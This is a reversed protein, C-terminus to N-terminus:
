GSRCRARRPGERRPELLHARRRAAPVPVPQHDGALPQDRRAPDAGARRRVRDGAPDGRLLRRRQLDARAARRRLDPRDRRRHQHHGGVHLRRSREAAEPAAVPRVARDGASSAWAAAAGARRRVRAHDHAHDRAGDRVITLEAPTTPAAATRPSAARVRAHRDARAPRPLRRARRRGRRARRRARPGDGRPTGARGVRGRALAPRALEALFFLIVFAIVVNVFPGAAIVVIRKWVPQAYYGRHADEAPIEEDPNM